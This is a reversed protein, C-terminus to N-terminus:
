DKLWYGASDNIQPAAAPEGRRECRDLWALLRCSLRLNAAAIRRLGRTIRYPKM